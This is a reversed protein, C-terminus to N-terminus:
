RIIPVVRRTKGLTESFKAKMKKCVLLSKTSSWEQGKKKKKKKEKKEDSLDSRLESNKFTM